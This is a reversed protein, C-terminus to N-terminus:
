MEAPTSEASRIRRALVRLKVFYTQTDTLSVTQLVNASPATRFCSSFHLHESMEESLHQGFAESPSANRSSGLEGADSKMTTKDADPTHALVTERASM